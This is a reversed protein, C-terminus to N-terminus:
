DVLWADILASLRAHRATTTLWMQMKLWNSCQWLIATLTEGEKQKRNDFAVMDLVVSRKKSIFKEINDLIEDPVQKSDVGIREELVDRMALSLCSRLLVQQEELPLDNLKCMRAYDDWAKRWAKFKSVSTEPELKPPAVPKPGRTSTSASTKKSDVLEGMLKDIKDLLFKRDDEAAQQQAKMQAEAAHRQAEAAQQQAQMMTLFDKMMGGSSASTDASGTAGSQSSKAEALERKIDELEKVLEDKTPM